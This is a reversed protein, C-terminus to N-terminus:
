HRHAVQDVADIRVLNGGSNGRIEVIHSQGRSFVERGKLRVRVLRSFNSPKRPGGARSPDLGTVFPKPRCQISGRQGYKFASKTVGTNGRLSAQDLSHQVTM